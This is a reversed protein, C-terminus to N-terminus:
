RKLNENLPFKNLDLKSANNWHRRWFRFQNLMKNQKKSKKEWTVALQGQFIIKIAESLLKQICKPFIKRLM